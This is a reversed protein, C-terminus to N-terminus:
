VSLIYLSPTISSAADAEPNITAVRGGPEIAKQVHDVYCSAAVNEILIINYIIM